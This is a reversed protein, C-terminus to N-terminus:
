EDAEELEKELEHLEMKTAVINEKMYQIKALEREYIRERREIREKLKNRKDIKAQREAEKRKREKDAEEREAVIADYEKAKRILEPLSSLKDAIANINNDFESLFCFHMGNVSKQKKRCNRSISLLAYGTEIAADTCSTYIKGTDLCIVPKCNGNTHIGQANAIAKDKITIERTM